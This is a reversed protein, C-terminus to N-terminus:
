EKKREGLWVLGGALALLYIKARLILGISLAVSPTAGLMSLFYYFAGEQLGLGSPTLPLAGILLILPLVAFLEVTPIDYCAIAYAAAQTNVVTFIHFLFSLSLAKLLLTKNSFATKLILQIKEIHVVKKSILPIKSCVILLKGSLMLLTLLLLGICMLVVTLKIVIPLEPLFFIAIFGLFLMAVFGTYREMITAAFADHKTSHKGAYWSRVADGGIYSPLLLNIFYGLLYYNFLKFASISHGSASIFLKWKLASIYILVVSIMILVFVAPFNLKLLENLLKEPETLWFLFAYILIAALFKLYNKNM